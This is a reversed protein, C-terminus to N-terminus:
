ADLLKEVHLVTCEALADFHYGGELTSVLKGGCHKKAVYLLQDTMWGFVETTLELPALPDLQHADFGASILVFQPDFKEIAPLVKEDFARQWEVDSSPPLMPLNMTFGEGEGCGQEHEHGTGPYVVGPHGHLSIFFVRPDSEFIHQTGNGHHVDWDLILVRSLGHHDLLYQAAIAVHNFLCFGMSLHREAHHGPPRVACFANDVRGAIIDNVANILTGSALQAIQFSEPCIASDPVDICSLGNKCAQELRNIYGPDHVKTVLSMDVPSVNIAKCSQILNKQDLADTIVALRQPCEPHDAGTQHQQFREDLALGTTAM